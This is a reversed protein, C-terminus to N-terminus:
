AVALHSAVLHLSYVQSMGYNAIAGVVIMSTVIFCRSRLQAIVCVGNKCAHETAAQLLHRTCIFLLSWFLAIALYFIETM